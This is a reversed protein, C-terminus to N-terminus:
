PRELAAANSEILREFSPWNDLYLAGSGRRDATLDAGFRQQDLSLRGRTVQYRWPDPSSEAVAWGGDRWSWHEGTMMGLREGTQARVDSANPPGLLLAITRADAMSALATRVDGSHRVATLLGQLDEPSQRATWDLTALPVHDSAWSDSLAITLDGVPAQSIREAGRALITNLADPGDTDGVCLRGIAGALGESLWLADAGQRLDARDQIQRRALATAIEARRLWHGPGQETVDWHPAEALLLWDGSVATPGLGRPWQAIRDVPSAQGLRRVVCAQMASLDEKIDAVVHKIDAVVHARTTDHFVEREGTGLNELAPMWVDAFDLQGQLKGRRILPAKEVEEIRVIWNWDGAPAVAGSALSAGYAPLRPQPNLGLRIRDAPVRTIRDADLGLRPMVDVARLWYGEPGLWSPREGADWGSTDLTWTIEVACGQPPCEGLKIALHDGEVLTEAERCQVTAKLNEIGPPLTAHLTGHETRTSIMIFLGHLQRANPDVSLQIWGSEVSFTSAQALWQREWQADKILTQEATEDTGAAVYKPHLGLGFVLMAGLAGSAVWGKAGQLRGHLQRGGRPTRLMLTSKGAGNSGLLSDLRPSVQLNVADLARIGNPDIKSLGQISFGDDHTM